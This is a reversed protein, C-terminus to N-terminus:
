KWDAPKLNSGPIFTTFGPVNICDCVKYGDIGAVSPPANMVGWDGYQSKTQPVPQPTPKSVPKPAPKRVAVPPSPPAKVGINNCPGDVTSAQYGDRSYFWYVPTEIGSIRCEIVPLDAGLRQTQNNAVEPMKGARNFGLTAFVTGDESVANHCASETLPDDDLHLSLQEKLEKAQTNSYGQQKLQMAAEEPTPKFSVQQLLTTGYQYQHMTVWDAALAPASWGVLSWISLALARSMHM